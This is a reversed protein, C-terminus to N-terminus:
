RGGGAGHRLLEGALLDRRRGDVSDACVRTEPNIGAHSLMRKARYEGVRPVSRVLDFFRMSSGGAKVARAAQVAGGYVGAARIAQRLRAGELRAAQARQLASSRQATRDAM